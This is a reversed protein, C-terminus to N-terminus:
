SEFDGCKVESMEVELSFSNALEKQRVDVAKLLEDKAEQRLGVASHVTIAFDELHQADMLSIQKKKTRIQNSNM